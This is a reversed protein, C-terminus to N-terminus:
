RGGLYDTLAEMFAKKKPRSIVLEEGSVVVTNQRVEQVHALNVLYGSNCRVFDNGSLKQEM